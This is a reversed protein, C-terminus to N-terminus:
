LILNYSPGVVEQNSEMQSIKLNLNEKGLRLLIVNSPDVM